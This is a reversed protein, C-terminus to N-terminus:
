NKYGCANWYGNIAVLLVSQAAPVGTYKDGSSTSSELLPLYDGGFVASLSQDYNFLKIEMGENASPDPLIIYYPNDGDTGHTIYYLGYSTINYDSSTLDIEFVPKRVLSEATVKKTTSSQVIPLVETGAVSTASTLESIKPM